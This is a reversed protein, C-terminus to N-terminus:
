LERYLNARSVSSAKNLAALVAVDSVMFEAERRQMFQRAPNVMNLAAHVATAAHMPNM